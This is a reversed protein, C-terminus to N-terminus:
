ALIPNKDAFYQRQMACRQTRTFNDCIFKVASATFPHQQSVRYLRSNSRHNSDFLTVAPADGASAEAQASLIDQM